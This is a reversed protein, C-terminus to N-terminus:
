SRLSDRHLADRHLSDRDYRERLQMLDAQQLEAAAAAEGILVERFRVRRGPGYQALMDVDANIVVFVRPYGGTTQRDRLLVIPGSPTMQITGDCVPASVLQGPKLGPLPAADLRIGMDSMENTTVWAAALFAAPDALWSREPGPLVRIRGERDPWRAIQEFSGRARHELHDTGEGSPRLSLYTRFGYRRRRFRLESGARVAYVRAHNVPVTPAPPAAPGADSARGGERGSEPDDAVLEAEVGGGTLVFCSDELFRVTRPPAIMELAPHDELDLLIQGTKWSFRDLAGGPTYGMDQRGYRPAGKWAYIGPGRLEVLRSVDTM